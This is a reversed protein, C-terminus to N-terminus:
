NLDKNKKMIKSGVYGGAYGITLWASAIWGNLMWNLDVFQSLFTFLLLSSLLGIVSGNLQGFRTSSAGAYLCVLFLGSALFMTFWEETIEFKYHILFFGILLNVVFNTIVGRSIINIDM